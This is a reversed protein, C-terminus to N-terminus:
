RKRALYATLGRPLPVGAYGGPLTRAAFGAARLRDLVEAPRYLHLRHKEESRRFRGDGVDLFTVIQRHLEGAQRSTEVLVAWGVGEHWTRQPATPRNPSALDFLLLGGRRLSQAARELVQGLTREDNRADIRYGLVEGVAIIADCPNPLEADVFSGVRFKASPARARALGIQEASSDIGLVDHGAATLLRATTGDGCGLEVVHSAPELRPLLERAAAVAVATFGAGHVVTLDEGYGQMPLM